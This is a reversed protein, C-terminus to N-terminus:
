HTLTLNMVAYGQQDYCIKKFGVKRYWELLFQNDKSCLLQVHDVQEKRLRDLLVLMMKSGNRPIIGKFMGLYVYKGGKGIKHVHSTKTPKEPYYEVAGISKKGSPKIEEIVFTCDEKIKMKDGKNLGRTAFDHTYEQWLFRRIEGKRWKKVPTFEYNPFKFVPIRSKQKRRLRPM